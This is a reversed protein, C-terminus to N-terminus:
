FPGWFTDSAWCGIPLHLCGSFDSLEPFLRGILPWSLSDISTKSMLFLQTPGESPKRKERGLDIDKFVDLM